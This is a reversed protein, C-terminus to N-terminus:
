WETASKTTKGAMGDCIKFVFKKITTRYEFACNLTRRGNLRVNKLPGVMSVCMNLTAWSQFAYKLHPGIQFACECPPMCNLRVM